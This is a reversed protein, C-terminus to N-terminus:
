PTVTVRFPVGEGTPQGTTFDVVRINGEAVGESAAFFMVGVPAPTITYDYWLAGSPIERTIVNEGTTIVIDTVGETEPFPIQLLTGQPATVVVTDGSVVAEPELPEVVKLEVDGSPAATEPVETAVEINPVPKPTGLANPVVQNGSCATLLVVTTLALVVTIAKSKKM